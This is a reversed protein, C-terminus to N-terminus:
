IRFLTQLRAASMVDGDVRLEGAMYLQMPNAVGAALRLFPVAGIEFTMPGAGNGNADVRCDGDAVVVRYRDVGGDRRGGIAFTFDLQAEGARARDLRRPLEGFVGRLLPRRLPGRM